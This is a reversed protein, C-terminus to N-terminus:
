RTRRAVRRVPGPEAEPREVRVLRDPDIRRGLREQMLRSGQIEAGTQWGRLNGLYSELNGRRLSELLYPMLEGAFDELEERSFAAAWPYPTGVAWEAPEADRNLLRTVQFQFVDQLVALTSREFSRRGWDDMALLAPGRKIFVPGKKAADLVDRTHRHVDTSVFDAEPREPLTFADMYDELFSGGAGWDIQVSRMDAVGEAGEPILGGLLETANHEIQWTNWPEIALTKEQDAILVGKSEACRMVGAANMRVDTPTFIEIEPGVTLHSYWRGMQSANYSVLGAILANPLSVHKPM